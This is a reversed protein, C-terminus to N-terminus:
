APVTNTVVQAQEGRVKTEYDILANPDNVEARFRRILDTATAAKANAGAVKAAKMRERLSAQLDAGREPAVLLGIAAGAAVGAAGGLAFKFASGILSM